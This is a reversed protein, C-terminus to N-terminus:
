SSEVEMIMAHYDITDITFSWNVQESSTGDLMFWCMFYYHLQTTYDDNFVIIEWKITAGSPENWQLGTFIKNSKAAEPYRSLNPVLRIQYFVKCLCHARVPKSYSILHFIQFYFKFNLLRLVIDQMSYFLYAALMLRYRLLLKLRFHRFGSSILNSEAAIM